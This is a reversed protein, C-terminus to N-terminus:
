LAFFNKSVGLPTTLEELLQKVKQDINNTIKLKTAMKFLNTAITRKKEQSPEGGSIQSTNKAKELKSLVDKKINEPLQGSEKVLKEIELLKNIVQEKWREWQEVSELDEEPIDFCNGNSFQVHYKPTFGFITIIDGSKYIVTGQEGKEFQKWQTKLRVRENKEFSM